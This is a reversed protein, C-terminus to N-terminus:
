LDYPHSIRFLDKDKDYCIMIWRDVKRIMDILLPAEIEKIEDLKLGFQEFLKHISETDSEITINIM